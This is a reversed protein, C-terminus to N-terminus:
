FDPIECQASSVSHDIASFSSFFKRTSPQSGLPDYTIGSVLAVTLMLNLALLVVHVAIGLLHGRSRFWPRLKKDRSPEHDHHVFPDTESADHDSKEASSRSTPSLFSYKAKTSFIKPLVM